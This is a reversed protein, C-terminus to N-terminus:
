IDSKNHEDREKWMDIYPSHNQTNDYEQVAMISNKIFDHEVKNGRHLDSLM